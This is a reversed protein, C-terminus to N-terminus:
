AHRVEDFYIGRVWRPGTFPRRAHLLRHNDYIAFDGAELRVSIQHAPDRVLRAFDDYARYFASMKAFSIRHPALTFYSYRVRFREPADYSGRGYALVPADVISEFAKQKRHFRVPITALLDHSLEDIARFYQAALYADVFANEGGTTAPRIAQLLQYQPPSDIFPQDTHLDIPADTYGLQDTNQNTTNDPRLDEIRGFHTGRVSLGLAAFADILSDTETEPTTSTRRVIALGTERVRLLAAQAVETLDADTAFHLLHPTVDSSLPKVSKEVRGYAVRRLWDRTHHSVAGDNWEIKLVGSTADTIVSVPAIDARLESSCLTVEGTKPHRELGANHRLFRAHFDNFDDNKESFWVRIFHREDEAKLFNSHTRGAGREISETADTM